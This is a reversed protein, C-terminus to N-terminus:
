SSESGCLPCRGAWLLQSVKLSLSDVSLLGLKPATMFHFVPGGMEDNQPAQSYGAPGESLQQQVEEISTLKGSCVQNESGSLRFFLPLKLNLYGSRSLFYKLSLDLGFNRGTRNEGPKFEKDAHLAAPLIERPTRSTM